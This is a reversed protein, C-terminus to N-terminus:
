PIATAQPLVSKVTPAFKQTGVRYTIPPFADDFHDIAVCKPRTVQLIRALKKQPRARGQYPFVLLDANRPYDAHPVLDASGFILANTQGDSIEFANRKPTGKFMMHEIFHSIGNEQETEFCSGTGVLLGMSVSLLGDIKKVVLRLGSPFKKSYVKDM